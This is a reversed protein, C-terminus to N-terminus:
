LRVERTASILVCVVTFILAAWILWAGVANDGREFRVKRDNPDDPATM